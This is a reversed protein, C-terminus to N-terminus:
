LDRRKFHYVAGSLFVVAILALLPIGIFFVYKGTAINVPQYWNFLSYPKLFAVKPWLRVLADFVFLFLIIGISWAMASGRESHLTSIFTVLASIAAFFLLGIAIIKLLLVPQIDEPIGMIERGILSGCIMSIFIMFLITLIFGYTSFVLSERPILRIALLEISRGEIEGTIYRSAISIPVFSLMFLIAPHTYGFAIFQSGMINEGMFGMMQKIMPPMLKFYSEAFQRITSTALIVTYLFEILFGFLMLLVIIKKQNMFMRQFQQKSIPPFFMKM